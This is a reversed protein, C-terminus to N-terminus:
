TKRIVKKFACLGYYSNHRMGFFSFVNNIDIGLQCTVFHLSVTDISANNNQCKRSLYSLTRYIFIQM